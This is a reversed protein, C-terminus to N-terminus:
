TLVSSSNEFKDVYKFQNCANLKLYTLVDISILGEVIKKNM